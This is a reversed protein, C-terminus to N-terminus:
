LILNLLAGTIVAVAIMIFASKIMDKIGLEKLLVMFTAACPFYIALIVSGIVLQKSTLSLPALMGVAVDKRLFGILLAGITEKPLGWLKTILPSFLGALFDIVGLAYLINVVLVGLLVYPIAEKIFGQVRMWTKKSLAKIQPRRYPPVELLIEPSSGRLLRNLLLGMSVWIIFLTLFVIALYRGGRQGVLGVIVAIQAMCPVAVAMLTAAIFRERRTELLRISLAGPVNCGLGLIMSIISYGHLGIKHMLNDVLVGLRPLYGLDELFGLILYFSLIYPLVQAIPVYLGTTLLGFSQGFDIKGDILEGILIQHLFNQPGLLGSLLAILPKYVNEFLPDFIYNILGEGIFRVVQFSLYIVLGAIPLGTKPKISLDELKEIVTPHRHSLLQVNSIIEGIRQWHTKEDKFDVGGIAADKIREVLNKIGEGTLACTPVVPVKLIQELKEYDIQIGRHKAEDQMNLAVVIPINEKILELTLYLNRELNTSDIINIILDSNEIMRKAVEESKSTPELSYIGPVDRIEVKEGDVKMYGKTYEVTTGPYNSIIVKAGTLRSFIASKGVNPNGVLAIRKV